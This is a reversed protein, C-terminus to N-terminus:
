FGENHRSTSMGTNRSCSCHPKKITNCKCVYIGVQVTVNVVQSIVIVDRIM